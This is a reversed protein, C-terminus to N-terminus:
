HVTKREYVPKEDWTEIRSIDPFATALLSVQDEGNLMLNFWKEEGDREVYITYINM